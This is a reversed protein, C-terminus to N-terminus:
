NGLIIKSIFLWISWSGATIILGIIARRLITTGEKALEENGRATMWKYGGLIILIIFIVGLFSLAANVILGIFESLSSDDASTYGGAEGVTTLRNAASPTAFVFYPIILIILLLAIFTISKLIKTM